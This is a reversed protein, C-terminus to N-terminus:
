QSGSSPRHPPESLARRPATPLDALPDLGSDLRELMEHFTLHRLGPETLEDWTRPVAVTPFTRGRLSYPSITTKKANNQSWDILVKGGRLSKTMRSVALTPMAKEIQEAALRAMRLSTVKLEQGAVVRVGTDVAM